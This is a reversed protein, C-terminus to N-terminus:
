HSSNLRTSKRDIGSTLQDRYKFLELQSAGLMTPIALFFSLEAATRREVGLSLAGLITAGSRSVGPIMALCQIFGIGITRGLPIEAVGHIDARKVFREIVLIAIGGVILAIAVVRPAGLLDSSCVDSSWDSIRM